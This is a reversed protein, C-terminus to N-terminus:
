YADKRESWAPAPSNKVQGVGGEVKSLIRLDLSKLHAGEDQMAWLSIALTNKGNYNLIGQPVFFSKQPGISNVYKGFQYGNVYIQSRYYSGTSNSYEIAMPYDLGSPVDLNFTTRYFAVGPEKVGDLPSGAKWDSDDFGPLHWGQREAYLGGENLPGREIDLYKEGGLNGTLKWHILKPEAGKFGYDFIGRPAKFHETAATRTCVSLYLHESKHIQEPIGIRKM